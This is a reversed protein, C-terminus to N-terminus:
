GSASATNTTGDADDPEGLEALAQEHTMAISGSHVAAIKQKAAWRKPFRRELFWAQAQWGFGGRRLTALSTIEADAEAKKIYAFFDAYVQAHEAKAEYLRRWYAVTGHHVGARKCAVSLSHGQTLLEIIQSQVAPTLAQPRDIATSMTVGVDLGM